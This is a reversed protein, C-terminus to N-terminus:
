LTCTNHYKRSQSIKNVTTLAIIWLLGLFFLAILVLWLVGSLLVVFVLSFWSIMWLFWAFLSSLWSLVLSLFSQSFWLLGAESGLFLLLCLLPHKDTNRFRTNTQGQKKPTPIKGKEYRKYQMTTIAGAQLMIFFNGWCGFCSFWLLM